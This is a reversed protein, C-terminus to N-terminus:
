QGTEMKLARIASAIGNATEKERKGRWAFGDTVQACKEQTAAVLVRFAKVIREIDDAEYPAGELSRHLEVARIVLPDKDDIIM